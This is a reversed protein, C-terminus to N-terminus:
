LRRIEVLHEILGEILAANEKVGRRFAEAFQADVVYESDNSNWVTPAAIRFRDYATARERALKSFTKLRTRCSLKLFRSPQRM